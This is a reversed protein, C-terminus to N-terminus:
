CCAPYAYLQCEIGVCTPPADRGAVTELSGWRGSCIDTLVHRSPHAGNSGLGNHYQSACFARANCSSSTLTPLEEDAGVAQQHPQIDVNYPRESTSSPHRHNGHLSKPVTARAHVQELPGPKLQAGQSGM